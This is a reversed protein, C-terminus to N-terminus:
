GNIQLLWCSRSIAWEEQARIMLVRVRSDALAIDQDRLPKENALGENRAADLRVGLFELRACAEARVEASNEGIGATFVLADIG